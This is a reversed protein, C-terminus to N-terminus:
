GAGATGPGQWRLALITLDDAPEAGAAFATVDAQLADVVSRATAAGGSLRPVIAEVRASGYLGGAPNQAETVGDTIICLLEGPRMALRGGQYDFDGMACLPPGDGDDIRRVAAGAPYILYPNDHGANCYDLEGTELDLIGAFATVFLMEQNDRSVEANAVAMLAGVDTGAARLTASKYLAKSVAM